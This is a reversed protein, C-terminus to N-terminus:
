ELLEIARRKRALDLVGLFVDGVRGVAPLAVLERTAQLLQLHQLVRQRM